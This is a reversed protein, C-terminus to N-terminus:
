TRPHQPRRNVRAFDVLAEVGDFLQALLGDRAFLQAVRKGAYEVQLAQQAPDRKLSRVWAVQHRKRSRQRPNRLDARGEGPKLRRAQLRQVSGDIFEGIDTSANFM